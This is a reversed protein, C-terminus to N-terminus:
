QSSHMSPRKCRLWCLTTKCIWLYRCIFSLSSLAINLCPAHSSSTTNILAQLPPPVLVPPAIIPPPLLELMLEDLELELELELELALTVPSANGLPTDTTVAVLAPQHIAIKNAIKSRL